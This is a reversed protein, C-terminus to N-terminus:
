RQGYRKKLEHLLHREPFTTRRLHVSRGTTRTKGIFLFPVPQRLGDPGAFWWNYYSGPGSAAQFRQDGFTHDFSIWLSDGSVLFVNPSLWQQHAGTAGSLGVLALGIIWRMFDRVMSRM